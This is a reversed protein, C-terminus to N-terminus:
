LDRYCQQGLIETEAVCIRSFKVDNSNLIFYSHFFSTFHKLYPMRSSIQTDLTRLGFTRKELLMRNREVTEILIYQLNPSM